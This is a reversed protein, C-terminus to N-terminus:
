NGFPPDLTCLTTEKNHYSLNPEKLVAWNLTFCSGSYNDISNQPSRIILLIINM